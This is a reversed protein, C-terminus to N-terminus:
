MEDILMLPCEILSFYVGNTSQNRGSFIYYVDVYDILGTSGSYNPMALKIHEM